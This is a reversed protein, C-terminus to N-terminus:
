LTRSGQCYKPDDSAKCIQLAESSKFKSQFGLALRPEHEWSGDCDGSFKMVTVQGTGHMLCALNM